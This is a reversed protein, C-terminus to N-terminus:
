LYSDGQAIKWEDPFTETEICSNFIKTLSPGIISSALKLLKCRVGDLGMAKKEDLQSLLECVTFHELLKAQDRDSYLFAIQSIPQRMAHTVLRRQYFLRATFITITYRQFLSQKESPFARGEIIGVTYSLYGCTWLYLFLCKEKNAFINVTRFTERVDSSM